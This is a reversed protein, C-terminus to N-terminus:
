SSINAMKEKEWESADKDVLTLMGLEPTLSWLHRRVSATVVEMIVSQSQYRLLDYYFFLDIHPAATSLRESVFYSGYLLVVFEAPKHLRGEDHQNRPFVVSFNFVKLM